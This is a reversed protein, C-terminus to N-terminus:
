DKFNELIHTVNSGLQKFNDDIKALEETTYTVGAKQMQVSTTHDNDNCLRVYIADNWKWDGDDIGIKLQKLASEYSSRKAKYTSFILDQKEAGFNSRIFELVTGLVAGSLTCLSVIIRHPLFKKDSLIERDFKQEKVFCHAVGGLVAMAAGVIGGLIPGAAAKLAVIGMGDQVIRPAEDDYKINNIIQDLAKYSFIFATYESDQGVKDYIVVDEGAAIKKLSEKLFCSEDAFNGDKNMVSCRPKGYNPDVHIGNHGSNWTWGWAFAPAASLNAALTVCLALSIIKKIHKTM